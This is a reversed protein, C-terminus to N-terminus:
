YIVASLSNEKHENSWSILICAAFLGVDIFCGKHIDSTQSGSTKESHGKPLQEIEM